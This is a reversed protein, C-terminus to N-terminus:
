RLLYVASTLATMLILEKIIRFNYRYSHNFCFPTWEMFATLAPLLLVVVKERGVPSEVDVIPLSLRKRRVSLRLLEWDYSGAELQVTLEVAAYILVFRPVLM